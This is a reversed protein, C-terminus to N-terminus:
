GINGRNTVQRQGPIFGNGVGLFVVERNFLRLFVGVRDIFVDPTARHLCARQFIRPRCRPIVDPFVGGIWVRRLRGVLHHEGECCTNRHCEIALRYGGQLCDLLEVGNGSCVTDTPDVNHFVPQDPNFTALDIFDGPSVHQEVGM